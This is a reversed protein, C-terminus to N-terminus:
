EGKRIRSGLRGFFATGAFSLIGLPFFVVVTWLLNFGFDEWFDHPDVIRPDLFPQISYIYLHIIFAPIAFLLASHKDAVVPFVLTIAFAVFLPVLVSPVVYILLVDSFFGGGVSSSQPLFPALIISLAPMLAILWFLFRSMDKKGITSGQTQTHDM